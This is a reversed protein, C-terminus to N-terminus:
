EQTPQKVRRRLQISYAISFALLILTFIAFAIMLLPALQPTLWLQALSRGMVLGLAVNFAALISAAISVPRLSIHTRQPMFYAIYTNTLRIVDHMSKIKSPNLNNRKMKDVQRYHYNIVNELDFSGTYIRMRHRPEDIRPTARRPVDLILTEVCAEEAFLSFLGATIQKDVISATLFTSNSPALFVTQPQDGFLSSGDGEIRLQGIRLFGMRQIEAILKDLATPIPQNEAEVATLVAPQATARLRRQVLRLFYLVIATILIFFFLTASLGLSVALRVKLRQHVINTSKPYQFTIKKQSFFVDKKSVNWWCKPKSEIQDLLRM